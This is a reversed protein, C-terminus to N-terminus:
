SAFVQLLIRHLVQLETETLDLYGFIMLIHLYIDKSVATLRNGSLGLVVLRHLNDFSGDDIDSIMNNDLYLETINNHPTPFTSISVSTFNNGEFHVIQVSPNLYRPLQNISANSCMLMTPSSMMQEDDTYCVCAPLEPVCVGTECVFEDVSLGDFRTAVGTVAHICYQLIYRGAYKSDKLWQMRCSCIIPNDDLLVTYGVSTMNLPRFESLENHQVDLTTLVSAFTLANPSITRLGCNSISIYTM